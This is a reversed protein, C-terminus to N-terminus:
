NDGGASGKTAAARRSRLHEIQRKIDEAHLRLLDARQQSHPDGDSRLGDIENAAKRLDNLLKDERDDLYTLSQLELWATWAQLAAKIIGYLSM